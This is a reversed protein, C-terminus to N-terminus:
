KLNHISSNQSTKQIKSGNQIGGHDIRLCFIENCLHLIHVLLGTLLQLFQPFSVLLCLILFLTTHLKINTVINLSNQSLITKRSTIVILERSSFDTRQLNNLLNIGISITVNSYRIHEIHLM